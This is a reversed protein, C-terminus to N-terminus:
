RVSRWTVFAKKGPKLDIEREPMEESSEAGSYELGTVHIKYKGAKAWVRAVQITEPLTSWQRLDARDMVNMAIWAIQGLAKNKQAIQDAVVAKAVVGGVRSAVLRAYDDDLTKIAIDQVNFVRQSRSDVANAGSVPAAVLRAGQTLSNVGVLHPFRPSEPRPYKRPGWGQQYVLIIEGMSADKWEPRIKVEPFKKKWEELEDTRGSRMATRILDEHLPPYEPILEYASKYAIYADDWKKDAEWIVASLYFAYPNQEYDRKAEYKFKYLKQNLKRVEVLADDLEGLELYNMANIGNIMVKEFNDGKYQVMEESLVASAAIKSISHYDQIDAIKEARGFAQASEKYRGSLYLATAYDLLYVLQDNGEQNSLPELQVAAQSPQNQAILDRAGHIKGQYTACGSTAIVLFAVAASKLFRPVSQSWGDTAMQEIVAGENRAERLIM